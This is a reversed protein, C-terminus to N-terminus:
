RHGPEGAAVWARDLPTDGFFEERDAFFNESFGKVQELSGACEQADKNM